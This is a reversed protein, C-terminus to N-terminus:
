PLVSRRRRYEQEDIEGRAYCEDRIRRAAAGAGAGIRSSERGGRALNVAAYGIILSGAVVLAPWVWMWGIAQGGLVAIM